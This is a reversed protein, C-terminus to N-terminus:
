EDQTSFEKTARRISKSAGEALVEGGGGVKSGVTLTISFLSLCLIVRM